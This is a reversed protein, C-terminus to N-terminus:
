WLPRKAPVGTRRPYRDPTPANKTFVVVAFGAARGPESRALGLAGLGNGDWRGPEVAPPESVVLQGGPELFGAALEATVAPTGFARAVVLPFAERLNPDHALEEARGNRVNVRDGIGLRDAAHRAFAARREGADLLTARTGPWRTALILGPVGPGSGLDLFRAPGGPGFRARAAALFAEAHEIHRVPDEPGLLGATRAETLVQELTADGTGAVGDM